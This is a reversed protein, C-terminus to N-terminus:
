QVMCAFRAALTPQGTGCGCRDWGGPRQICPGPCQAFAIMDRLFKGVCGLYHAAATPERATDMCAGIATPIRAATANCAPAVPLGRLAEVCAAVIGGNGGFYRTICPWLRPMPLAYLRGIRVQISTGNDKRAQLAALIAAPTDPPPAAAGAAAAVAAAAAMATFLLLRVPDRRM